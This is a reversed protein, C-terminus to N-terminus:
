TMVSKVNSTRFEVGAKFNPSLMNTISNYLKITAFKTKGCRTLFGMKLDMSWFDLNCDFMVSFDTM